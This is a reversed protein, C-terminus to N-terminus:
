QHGLKFFHLAGCRLEHWARRVIHQEHEIGGSPLVSERLRALKGAVGAHGPDHQCFQISSRLASDDHGNRALQIQRYSKDAGTFLHVIEYGKVRLRVDIGKEVSITARRLSERLIATDSSCHISRASASAFRPRASACGFGRTPATM